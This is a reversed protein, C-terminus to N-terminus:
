VVNTCRECTGSNLGGCGLTYYGWPCRPCAATPCSNNVYAGMGTYYTYNTISNNCKQCTLSSEVAGPVGCGWIFEGNGCTKKCGDVQCINNVGGTSVYIQSANGNTCKTCIGAFSGGCSAKYEGVACGSDTCDEVKCTASAETNPIFYKNTVASCQVCTGNVMPDNYSTLAYGTQCTPKPDSSCQGPTRAVWYRGTPIDTCAVCNPQLLPDNYNNDKTGLPCANRATVTDLCTSSPSSPTTFYFGPLPDACRTCTGEYTSNRNLNSYGAACQKQTTQVCSDTLGGTLSFYKNAALGTCDACYGSSNFSCAHRYQWRECNTPCSTLPCSGDVASGPGSYFQGPPQAHVANLWYNCVLM